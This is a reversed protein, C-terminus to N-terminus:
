NDSESSEFTLKAVPDLYEGAGLRNFNIGGSPSYKQYGQFGRECEDPWRLIKRWEERDTITLEDKKKPAQAKSTTPCLGLLLFLLGFYKRM